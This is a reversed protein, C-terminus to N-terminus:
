NGELNAIQGISEEEPCDQGLGRFSRQFFHVVEEGVCREKNRTHFFRIELSMIQFSPHLLDLPLLGVTLM